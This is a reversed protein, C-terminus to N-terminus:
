IANMSQILFFTFALLRKVQMRVKTNNTLHKIKRERKMAKSRTESKKLYVVKKPTHIRVYNDGSGKEHLKFSAARNQWEIFEPNIPAIVLSTSSSVFSVDAELSISIFIAAFAIIAGIKSKM